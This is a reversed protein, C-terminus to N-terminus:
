RVPSSQSPNRPATTKNVSTSSIRHTSPYICHLRSPIFSKLSHYSPIQLFPFLPIVATTRFPAM